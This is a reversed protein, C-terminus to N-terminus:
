GTTTTPALQGGRGVTDRGFEVGSGAFGEVPLCRSLAEILWGCL